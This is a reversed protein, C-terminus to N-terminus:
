ATVRESVPLIYEWSKRKPLYQISCVTRFPFSCCKGNYTVCGSVSLMYEWSKHKTPYSIFLAFQASIANNYCASGSVTVLQYCTNGLIKGKEM